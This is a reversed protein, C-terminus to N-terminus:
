KYKNENCVVYIYTFCFPLLSMRLDGLIDKFIARIYNKAELHEIFIFHFEVM